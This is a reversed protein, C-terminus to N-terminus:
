AMECVFGVHKGDDARHEKLVAFGAKDLYAKMTKPTLNFPHDIKIEKTVGFDVIDVFFLGDVALCDHIKELTGAIDLLHDVTQCLLILDFPGPVMHVHPLLCAEDGPKCIGKTDLDEMTGLITTLGAKSAENLENESPDLVTGSIKFRSGLTAAVTGTSGGIDLLSQAMFKDLYPQLLDGLRRAYERQEPKLTQANIERGHFASVLARYPGQYFDKYAEKTMRPNLYVLGCECTVVRVAFGYRDRTMPRTEIDAKGCLNCATQCQLLHASADFIATYDQVM